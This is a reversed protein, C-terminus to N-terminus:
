REINQVDNFFFYLLTEWRQFFVVEPSWVRSYCCALGKRSIPSGTLLNLAAEQGRAKNKMMQQLKTGQSQCNIATAM